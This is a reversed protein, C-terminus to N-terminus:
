KELIFTKKYEQLSTIAEERFGEEFAQAALTKIGGEQKPILVRLTYKVKPPLEFSNETTLFFVCGDEREPLIRDVKSNWFKMTKQDFFHSTPNLQKYKYILQSANM